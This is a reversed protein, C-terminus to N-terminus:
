VEITYIAQIITEIFEITDMNAITSCVGIAEFTLSM